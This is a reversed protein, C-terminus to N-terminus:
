KKAETYKKNYEDKWSGPIFLPIDESQLAKVEGTEGETHLKLLRKTEGTSINTQIEKLKEKENNPFGDKTSM